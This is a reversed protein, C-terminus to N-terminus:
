VKSGKVKTTTSASVSTKNIKFKHVEKLHRKM